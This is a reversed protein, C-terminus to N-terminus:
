YTTILPCYFFPNGFLCALTFCKRLCHPSVKLARCIYIYKIYSIYILRMPYQLGATDVTSGFVIDVCGWRSRLPERDVGSVARRRFTGCFPAAACVPAQLISKTIEAVAFVNCLTYVCLSHTNESLPFWHPIIGLLIYLTYTSIHPYIDILM